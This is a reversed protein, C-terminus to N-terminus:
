LIDPKWPCRVKKFERFRINKPWTSSMMAASKWKRNLVVKFSVYDLADCDVWRPVLKRVNIRENDLTGLCRSVMLHVEEESVSGDINTLLLDFNEDVCISDPLRSATDSANAIESTGGEKQRSSNPTSHRIWSTTDSHNNEHSTIVSLISAVKAKLEDVDRQLVCTPEPVTAAIPEKIKESHEKRWQVFEVLCEDCMWCSNKNPPSVAALEATNLKVCAAHYVAACLANCYIHPQDKTVVPLLCKKCEM